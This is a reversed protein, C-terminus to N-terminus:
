RDAKTILRRWIYFFEAKLIFVLLVACPKCRISRDLRITSLKAKLLINDIFSYVQNTNRSIIKTLNYLCFRSLGTNQGNLM